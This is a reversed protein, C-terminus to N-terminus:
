LRPAEYPPLSGPISRIRSIEAPPEHSPRATPVPLLDSPLQVHLKFIVSLLHFLSNVSDHFPGHLHIQGPVPGAAHSVIANGRGIFSRSFLFIQLQQLCPHILQNRQSKRFGPRHIGTGHPMTQHRQILRAPLGPVPLKQFALYLIQPCLRQTESIMHQLMRHRGLIIKRLLRPRIGQKHRCIQHQAIPHSLFIRFQNLIGQVLPVPMDIIKLIRFATKIVVAVVVNRFIM